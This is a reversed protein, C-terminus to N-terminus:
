GLPDFQVRGDKLSIQTPYKILWPVLVIYPQRVPMPKEVIEKGDIYVTKVLYMKRRKRAVYARAGAILKGLPSYKGQPREAAYYVLAAVTGALAVAIASFTSFVWRAFSFQADTVDSVAVRFYAAALRYIQNSNIEIEWSKKANSAILNAAALQREIDSTVGRDQKVLEDLQNQREDREKNLRKQVEDFRQDEAKGRKMMCSPDVSITCEKRIEELNQKHTKTETALADKREQIGHQLETRKGEDGSAADDRQQTLREVHDKAQKLALATETVSKLRLDVIREFGFTWNEFALGALVLIGLLAVAQMVKHRHFLVSTLPIRGLEAVAMMGMPMAILWPWIGKPVNGDPYTTVVATVFGAIVAVIEVTWAFTILIVGKKWVFM